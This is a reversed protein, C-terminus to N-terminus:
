TNPQQRWHDDRAPASPVSIGANNVLVDIGGFRDSAIQSAQAWCAPEAVDGALEVLTRGLEAARQRLASWDAGPLDLAVVDAGEALMRQAIALGIGQVAGTVLAVQGPLRM